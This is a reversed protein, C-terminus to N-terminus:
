LPPTREMQSLCLRSVKWLRSLASDALTADEGFILEAGQLSRSLLFLGVTLDFGLMRAIQTCLVGVIHTIDFAHSADVLLGEDVGVALQGDDFEIRLLM